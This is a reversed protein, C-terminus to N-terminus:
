CVSRLSEVAALSCKALLYRSLPLFVNRPISPSKEEEAWNTGPRTSYVISIQPILRGPFPTISTNGWISGVFECLKRKPLDSGLPGGALDRSQFNATSGSAVFCVPSEEAMPILLIGCRPAPCLACEQVQALSPRQIPCM